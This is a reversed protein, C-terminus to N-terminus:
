ILKELQLFQIAESPQTLIAERVSTFTCLRTAARSNHRAPCALLLHAADDVTGPCYTCDPSPAAEIQFLYKNLLSCHGILLQNLITTEHRSPPSRFKSTNVTSCHVPTHPQLGFQLRPLKSLYSFRPRYVSHEMGPLAIRRTMSLLM